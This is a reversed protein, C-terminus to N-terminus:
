NLAMHPAYHGNMFAGFMVGIDPHDVPEGSDDPELNRESVYAVYYHDGNDALLHYFPQEKDPRDQEPISLYWEESNAFRPDVDFVVGRFSHRRHRVIQGLAYKAQTTQPTQTM